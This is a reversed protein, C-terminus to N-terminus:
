EDYAHLVVISVVVDEFALKPYKEALLKGVLMRIDNKNHTFYELENGIRRAPTIKGDKDTKPITFIGVKSYAVSKGMKCSGEPKISYLKIIQEDCWNEWKTKHYKHNGLGNRESFLAPCEGNDKDGHVHQWLYETGAEAQEGIDINYQAVEATIAFRLFRTSYSVTKIQGIENKYRKGHTSSVSVLKGRIYVINYGHGLGPSVRTVKGVMIHQCLCDLPEKLAVVNGIHINKINM